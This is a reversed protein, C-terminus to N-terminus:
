DTCKKYVSNKNEKSLKKEVMSKNAKTLTYGQSLVRDLCSNLKILTESGTRYLHSNVLSQLTGTVTTPHCIKRHHSVALPTTKM